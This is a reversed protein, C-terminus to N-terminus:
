RSAGGQKKRRIKLAENGQREAELADIFKVTRTPIYTLAEGPPPIFLIRLDYQKM